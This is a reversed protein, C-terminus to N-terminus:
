NSSEDKKGQEYAAKLWDVVSKSLRPTQHPIIKIQDLLDYLREARLGHPEQEYFWKDFGKEIKNELYINPLEKRANIIIQRLSESGTEYWLEQLKCLHLREFAFYKKDLIRENM